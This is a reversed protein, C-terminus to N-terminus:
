SGFALATDCNGKGATELVLEHPNCLSSLPTAFVSLTGASETSILKVYNANMGFRKGLAILRRTTYLKLPTHVNVTRQRLALAITM